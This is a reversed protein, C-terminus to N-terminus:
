SKSKWSIYRVIRNIVAATTKYEKSLEIQKIGETEYKRRIECIQEWNFRSNANLEGRNNKTIGYRGGNEVSHKVNESPTVWELNNLHYNERNRDKHNVQTKNEPNAIFCEAVIRHVAKYKNKGNIKLNVFPYGKHNLRYKLPNGAKGFIVGDERVIYGFYNGCRLETAKLQNEM